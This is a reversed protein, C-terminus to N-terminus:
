PGCMGESCDVVSDKGLQWGVVGGVVVAGVTVGVIFWTSKYWPAQPEIPASTALGGGSVTKGTALRVVVKTTKQFRVDIEGAFSSYGQRTVSLKHKGLPLPGLSGALPTTGVIKGDLIVSAGDVDALLNISGRLREPALLRYASIRVAEILEDPNGSLPDTALRGLEKGSRVDIVKINVVYADGLAAVNGSVTYDVELARGIAALCKSQGTCASHPRRSAVEKVLRRGPGVRNSLRNLENRFLRELKIVRDEDMGLADFPLVAIRKNRALATPAPQQALASSPVAICLVTALAVLGRGASPDSAARM